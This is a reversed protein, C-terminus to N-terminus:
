IMYADRCLPVRRRFIRGFHFFNVGPVLNSGFLFFLVFCCRRRCRSRRRLRFADYVYLGYMSYM